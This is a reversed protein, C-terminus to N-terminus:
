NSNIKVAQLKLEVWLPLLHSSPVTCSSLLQSQPSHLFALHQALSTAPTVACACFCLLCCVQPQTRRQDPQSSSGCVSPFFMFWIVWSIVAFAPRFLFLSPDSTTTRPSTEMLGRCLAPTWHVEVPSLTCYYLEELSLTMLGQSQQEQAASSLFRPLVIALWDKQGRRQGNATGTFCTGIFLFDQKIAHKRYNGDDQIVASFCFFFHTCNSGPLWRHMWCSSQLDCSSYQPVKKVNLLLFM